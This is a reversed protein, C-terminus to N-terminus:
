EDPAVQEADERGRSLGDKIMTRHGRRLREVVAQRSVGFEEALGGVDVTRPIAYYGRDLAAVLTLCQNEALGFRGRRTEDMEYTATVRAPLDTSESFANTDSLADRNPFFRFSWGDGRGRTDLITAEGETLVHVLVRIEYVWRTKFSYEGNFRALLEVDEITPDAELADINGCMAWPSPIATSEDHAVVRVLEFTVDPAAEFTEALAFEETPLEVEAITSTADTRRM